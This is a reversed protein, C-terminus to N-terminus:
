IVMVGVASFLLFLIIIVAIVFLLTNDEEEDAGGQGQGSGGESTSSDNDDTRGCSQSQGANITTDSLSSGIFNLTTEQICTIFTQDPCAADSGDADYHQIASGRCPGFLCKRQTDLEANTKKYTEKYYNVLNDYFEQPWNCSCLGEYKHIDNPFKGPNAKARRYVTDCVNGVVGSCNSPNNKCWVMCKDYRLKDQTGSPAENDLFVRETCLRAGISEYEGSTISAPVNVTNEKQTDTLTDRTAPSAMQAGADACRKDEFGFDDVSSSGWDECKTKLRNACRRSIKDGGGAHDADSGKSFCYDPDCYRSQIDNVDDRVSQKFGCCADMNDIEQEYAQKNGDVPNTKKWGTADKFCPKSFNNRSGSNDSKTQYSGVVEESLGHTAQSGREDTNGGRWCYLTKLEHDTISDDEDIDDQFKWSKPPLDKYGKPCDNVKVDDCDDNDNENRGYSAPLHIRGHGADLNQRSQTTTCQKYNM